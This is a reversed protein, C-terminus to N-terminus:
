RGQPGFIEGQATPAAWPEIQSPPPDPQLRSDRAQAMADLLALVERTDRLNFRAHTSAIGVRITVASAPLARFMDEDTWDDGIGLIFDADVRGVVSRCFIGKSIGAQRVEVVKSGRLVQVDANATFSTLHDTLENELMRAQDPDALRYHWVLSHTKEEVFAGPLRDAYLQLIPRLNTKWSTDFEGTKTWAGSQDRVWAGHEAALGVPLGGVWSDLTERDRGSVIMVHTRTEAGVRGLLIKLHQGPRADPPRRALPVLTGDYDLFLLRRSASAFSDVIEMRVKRPLVKAYLRSHVAQMGALDSTFDQAWRTVDYRSIREQMIRNRRVQEEPPMELAERIAEAIQSRDNPNVVIAEGLEKAAGAMESLILVGGCGARSAVYEKAVLNMGDRLPTVLAIDSEAYLAVLPEFPLQRYRYLIPTWDLAGYRGNIRGVAEEIQQKMREYEYVGIRSPVVVLVLVVRQRAEPHQSLFLGFADLRNLIGKSYDLRDISLVVRRTGLSERVRVREEAVAPLSGAGAFRAFEIGMPYTGVRTVHDPAVVQGMDHDYGLIRLVAQLFHQMYEYTHFGVLDAGLLGELMQKRWNVPLLRFVEFSPFPIHLFFGVPTDPMRERLMRPLLMLHYDHIWIMDGSGVTGTLADCFAQNVRIYSEWSVDDYSTYSPFYHFLPWITKNCFGHYFLDMEQEPLFVPLAGFEELARTRLTDRESDPATGGPWGVWLFRHPPQGAGSLGELYSRLGTVLGGTSETFRYHDGDTVITFPLRNSVVVLRSEHTTERRM